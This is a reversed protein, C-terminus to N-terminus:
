VNVVVQEDGTLCLVTRYNSFWNARQSSVEPKWKILNPRMAIVSTEFRKKLAHSILKLFRIVSDIKLFSVSFMKCIQVLKPNSLSKSHSLFNDISFDTMLIIYAIFLNSLHCNVQCKQICRYYM